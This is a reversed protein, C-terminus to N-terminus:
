KKENRELHGLETVDEIVHDGSECDREGVCKCDKEGHWALQTCDTGRLEVYQNM